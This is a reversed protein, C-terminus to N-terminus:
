SKFRFLVRFKEELFTSHNEVEFVFSRNNSKLYNKFDLYLNSIQNDNNNYEKSLLNILGDYYQSNKMIIKELNINKKIFNILSVTEENTKCSIENQGLDLYSLNNLRIEDCVMKEFIDTKINNYKLKFKKLSFLGYNNKLFNIIVDTTLGCFSLDLKVLSIKTNPSLKLNELEKQNELDYTFRLNLYKLDCNLLPIVRNLYKIYNKNNEICNTIFINDNFLILKKNEKEVFLDMLLGTPISNSSLDLLKLNPFKIKINM